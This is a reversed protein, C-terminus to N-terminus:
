PLSRLQSKTQQQQMPHMKLMQGCPATLATMRFSSSFSRPSDAVNLLTGSVGWSKLGVGAYTQMYQQKYSICKSSRLSHIQISTHIAFLYGLVLASETAAANNGCCLTSKLLSTRLNNQLM